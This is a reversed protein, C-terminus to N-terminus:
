GQLLGAVISEMEIGRSGKVLVVDGEQLIARLYCLAEEKSHCARIREEALGAKIAGHGILEGLSGVTILRAIELEKAKKGVRYHGEETYDGLEYMDGLVAVARRGVALGALVDLAAAMSDPNANYTDNVLLIRREPIEQLELRMGTLSVKRLGNRIEDWSLGLQRAAAAAGLANLVNHRGLAPLVFDSAKGSATHVEFISGEEQKEVITQPYLDSSADWGFWSVASRINSLWPKLLSKDESNLVVGGRAPLHSLLEAKAQAIKEKSGLLELHTHGINTIIGYDPESIRALADIEGLGRMGMELTMAWHEQTLALITLPLGLENNYNAINRLVAGRESLIYWLMDKTSTKGSSGTVAAVPGKFLRRQAYALQKLAKSVDEVYILPLERGDYDLPASSVVAAAAGQEQAHRLYRHGDTNEGPLAFFLDNKKTKRSDISAGGPQIFSQASSLRGQVLAAIEKLSLGFM